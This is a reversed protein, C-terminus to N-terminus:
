VWLLAVYSMVSKCSPRVQTYMHQLTTTTTPPAISNVLVNNNVFLLNHQFHRPIVLYYAKSFETSVFFSQNVTHQILPTSNYINRMNQALLTAM